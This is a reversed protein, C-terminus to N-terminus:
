SRRYLTVSTNSYLDVAACLLFLNQSKIALSDSSDRRHLNWSTDLYIGARGSRMPSPSTLSRKRASWGSLRGDFRRHATPLMHSSLFTM